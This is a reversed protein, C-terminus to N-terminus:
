KSSSEGDINRKGFVKVPKYITYNKQGNERKEYTGLTNQKAKQKPRKVWFYKNKTNNLSIIIQHYNIM